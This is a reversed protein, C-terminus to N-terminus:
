TRENKDPNEYQRAIELLQLRGYIQNIADTNLNLQEVIKNIVETHENFRKALRELNEQCNLNQKSIDELMKYPDFDHLM